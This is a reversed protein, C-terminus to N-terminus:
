DHILRRKRHSLASHNSISIILFNVLKVCNHLATSRDKRFNFVSFLFCRSNWFELNGVILNKAVENFNCIRVLMKNGFGVYSLLSECVTFSIDSLFQLVKLAFDESCLVSANSKFVFSETGDSCRNCALNLSNLSCCLSKCSKVSDSRKGLYSGFVIIATRLNCRIACKFDLVASM